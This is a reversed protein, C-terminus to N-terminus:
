PQRNMQYYDWWQAETAEAAKEMQRALTDNQPYGYTRVQWVHTREHGLTKVLEEESRFANPFLRLVGDPTTQGFMGQRPASKHIEVEVGDLGVGAEAAIREVV